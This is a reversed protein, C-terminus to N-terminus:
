VRHARELGPIRHEGAQEDMWTVGAAYGARIKRSLTDSRPAAGAAPPHLRLRLRLRLRGGPVM